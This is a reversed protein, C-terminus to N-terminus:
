LLDCKEVILKFEDGNDEINGLAKEIVLNLLHAFCGYFSIEMIKAVRFMTSSDDSTISQVQSNFFYMYIFIVVSIISFM